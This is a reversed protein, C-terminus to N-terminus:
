TKAHMRIKRCCGPWSLPCGKKANLAWYDCKDLNFGRPSKSDGIVIFPVGSAACQRAFIRLSPNVPEAISTMVLSCNTNM